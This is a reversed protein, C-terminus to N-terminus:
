NEQGAERKLMSVCSNDHTAVWAPLEATATPSPLPPNTEAKKKEQEEEEEEEEENIYTRLVFLNGYYLSHPSSIHSFM